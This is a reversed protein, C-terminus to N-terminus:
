RHAKRAWQISSPKWDGDRIRPIKKGQADHYLGSSAAKTSELGVCGLDSGAARFRDVLDVDEGVRWYHQSQFGM